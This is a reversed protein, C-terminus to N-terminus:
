VRGILTQSIAAGEVTSKRHTGIYFVPNPSVRLPLKEWQKSIYFHKPSADMYTLACEDEESPLSLDKHLRRVYPVPLSTYRGMMHGHASVMLM